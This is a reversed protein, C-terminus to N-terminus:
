GVGDAGTPSDHSLGEYAVKLLEWIEQASTCRSARTYETECLLCFLANLSHAKKVNKDWSGREIKPDMHGDFM